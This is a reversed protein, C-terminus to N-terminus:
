EIVTITCRQKIGDESAYVYTKGKSLATVMGNKVTAISTNSVSWEPSIGSSVKATIKHTEGVKLVIKSTSLQITPQKVTVTCKSTVGDVTATIIATGHKIATVVGNENVTAVSKKNSKWIPKIGSSVSATLREQQKRYLTLSARSVRVTPKKVTVKCTVTTQDAKASIQTEGPKVGTVIGDESVTAISKKASKWTVTSKNSTEASLQIQEGHEISISKKSLTIETKLVTVKCSAEADKIKATITATGARKATVKGYTNVSAIKSDSSKWSPKKGTSTLAVIYFEGGIRLTGDYVSLVIYPISSRAYVTNDVLFIICFLFCILVKKLHKVHNIHKLFKFHSM